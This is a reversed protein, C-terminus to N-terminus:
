FISRVFLLGFGLAFWLGGTMMQMDHLALGGIILALAVALTWWRVFWSFTSVRPKRPVGCQPCTRAKDSVQGGCECCSVIAM